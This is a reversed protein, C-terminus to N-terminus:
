NLQFIRYFCELFCVCLVITGRYQGSTKPPRYSRESLIFHRFDRKKVLSVFFRVREKGIVYSLYVM